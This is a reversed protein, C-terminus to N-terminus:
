RDLKERVEALLTEANSGIGAAWENWYGEMDKLANAEVDPSPYSIVMGAAEHEKVAEAERRINEESIKTTEEIVIKEIVAQTEPSLANWADLNVLYWDEPTYLEFRLNHSLVDEWLQAGGASATVVGDVVGQQLAPAVEGTGMTIPAAGYNELFRASEPGGQRMKQGDLDKLETLKNRSFITVPSWLSYGIAKVGLKEFEAEIQPRAIAMVDNFDEADILMPMRMISALPVDGAFFGTSGFQVVGDAVAQTINGAKIPLSGGLNMTLTVEGDTEAKIREAINMLGEGAAFNTNPIFTYGIWSDANASTITGIAFTSILAASLTLRKIGAIM